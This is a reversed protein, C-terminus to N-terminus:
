CPVWRGDRIFGHAGCGMPCLLSGAITLHETDQPGGSMLRHGTSDPDPMLRLVCWAQCSPHHWIFGQGDKHWAIYVRNGLDIAGPENAPYDVNCLSLIQVPNNFM